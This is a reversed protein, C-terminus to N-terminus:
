KRDDTDRAFPMGLLRLLEFSKEDSSNHIVLVIDMGQIFQVKDVSVEPFAVQEDLGMGYNGHGDFKRSLGRFDRIRPIVVNILRDLFEYMRLGRLTVCCGVPMNERLHFASISKKAKTVLPHQGTIAALDAVAADLRAKEAIAKGVGMNVVIKELRPAALPNKFAFREMMKPVIEKRYQELLRAM